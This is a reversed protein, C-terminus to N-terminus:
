RLPFQAHRPRGRLQPKPKKDVVAETAAPDQRAGAGEVEGVAGDAHRELAAIAEAELIGITLDVVATEDNEIGQVRGFAAGDDAGARAQHTGASLVVDPLEHEVGSAM